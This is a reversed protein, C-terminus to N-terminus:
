ETGHNKLILTNGDYMSYVTGHYLWYQTSKSQMKM